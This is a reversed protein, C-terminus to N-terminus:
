RLVTFFNKTKSKKATVRFEYFLVILTASLLMKVAIKYKCNARLKQLKVPGLRVGFVCM